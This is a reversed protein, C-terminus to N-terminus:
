VETVGYSTWLLMLMFLEGFNCKSTTWLFDAYCIDVTPPGLNSLPHYTDWWLTYVPVNYIYTVTRWNEYVIIAYAHM